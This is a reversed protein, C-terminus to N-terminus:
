GYDNVKFTLNAYPNTPSLKLDEYNKERSDEEISRNSLLSISM